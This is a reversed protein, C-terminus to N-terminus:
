FSVIITIVAEIVRRSVRQRRKASERNQLRFSLDNGEVSPKRFFNFKGHMWSTIRGGHFDREIVNLLGSHIVTSDSM